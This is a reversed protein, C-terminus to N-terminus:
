RTYGSSIYHKAESAIDSNPFARIAAEYAQAAPQHQMKLDYIQGTHLWAVASSRHDIQPTQETAMKLEGLAPDLEGFRFLLNGRVFHVKAESLKSYGPADSRKLQEVDSIAEFAKAKDGMDGYLQAKELRFLFNRPYDQILNTILPIAEAPRHERRLIAELFFTAEVRNIKGQESVLNLTRIGTEKDGHFGAVFGIMKWPFVLSGVVYDHLGQILLADTVSPDIETIKNHLKRETTTERLTEIWAKKVLFAYDARMGHAVGMAYLAGIDNPNRKLAAGALEMSHTLSDLMLKRDAESMPLAPRHFFPNSDSVFGTDLAGARFMARFIVAQAVHNFADPSSPYAATEQRFDALAEDYELNYFHEFGDQAFKDM